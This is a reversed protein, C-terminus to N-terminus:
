SAIITLTDASRNTPNQVSIVISGIVNSVLALNGVGNTLTVAVPNGSVLLTVPAAGPKPASITITATDQGDAKISTKDVKLNVPDHANAAATVADVDAQVYTDDLYVQVPRLDGWASVGTCKVSAARCAPDLAGINGQFAMPVSVAHTM